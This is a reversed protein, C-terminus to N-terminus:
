KSHDRGIVLNIKKEKQQAHRQNGAIDAIAVLAKCNSMIPRQETEFALDATFASYV